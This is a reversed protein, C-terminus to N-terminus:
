RLRNRKRGGQREPGAPEDASELKSPVVVVSKKRQPREAQVLYQRLRSVSTADEGEQPGGKGDSESSWMSWLDEAPERSAPSPKLRGPVKGLSRGVRELSSLDTVGLMSALDPDQLETVDDMGQLLEERKVRPQVPKQPQEEMLQQLLDEEGQASAESRVAAGLRRKIMRLFAETAGDLADLARFGAEISDVERQNLEDGVARVQKRCALVLRENKIQLKGYARLVMGIGQGSFLPMKDVMEQALLYFLIESRVELQSYGQAVLALAQPTFTKVLPPIAKAVQTLLPVNRRRLKSSSYVLLSLSQANLDNVLEEARALLADVLVAQAGLSKLRTCAHLLQVVSVGGAARCLDAGLRGVAALALLEENEAEELGASVADHSPWQLRALANLSLGLARDDLEARLPEEGLSALLTRLLPEHVVGVSSFANMVVATDLATLDLHSELIWEALVQWLKPRKVGFHGFANTLLVLAVHDLEQPRRIVEDAIDDLLLEDRISLRVYANATDGLDRGNFLPLKHPIEASFRKFLAEDREKLKAYASCAFCLDQPTFQALRPLMWKSFLRLVEEHRHRAQALRQIIQAMQKPTLQAVVKCAREAYRDLLDPTSFGFRVMRNLNETLNITGLIEPTYMQTQLITEPTSNVATNMKHVKEYIRNFQRDAKEKM